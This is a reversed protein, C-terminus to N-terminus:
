VRLSLCCACKAQATTLVAGAMDISDPETLRHKPEEKMQKAKKERGRTHTSRKIARERHCWGSACVPLGVAAALVTSPGVGARRACAAAGYSRLALRVREAESPNLQDKKLPPPPRVSRPM